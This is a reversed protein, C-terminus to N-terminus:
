KLFQEIYDSIKGQRALDYDSFNCPIKQNKEIEFFWLKLNENYIFKLEKDKLKENDSSIHLIKGNEAIKEAKKKLSFADAYHWIIQAVLKATVKLNDTESDYNFIGMFQSKESLGHLYSIKCIERATLGNPQPNKSAPNDSFKIADMNISLSDALRIYPENTNNQLLQSLRITEFKNENLIQIIQPPILYNQYAILAPHWLFDSYLRMLDWITKNEDSFEVFSDVFVPTIKQQNTTMTRYIRTSIDIDSSVLILKANNQFCASAIKDLIETKEISIYGFDLIKINQEFYFNYLQERFALNQNKSKIEVLVIDFQSIDTDAQYDPFIAANNTIANYKQIGKFM